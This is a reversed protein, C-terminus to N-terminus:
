QFAQVVMDRILHTLRAMRQALERPSSIDEPRRALFDDLMSLVARGGESSPRLRGNAETDALRVPGGRRQGGVFWRFELYDTFVLNDLAERYRKLQRGEPTTPSARNSDREIAELSVGVDKAEVYGLTRPGHGASQSVSFDPAGCQIRKPENVANIGNGLSELFTKLAPRYTHETAVGNAMDKQISRLYERLAQAGDTM